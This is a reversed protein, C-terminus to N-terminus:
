KNSHALPINAGSTQLAALCGVAHYEGEGIWRIGCLECQEGRLGWATIAYRRVLGRLRVNEAKEDGLSRHALASLEKAFGGVIGDNISFSYSDIREALTM